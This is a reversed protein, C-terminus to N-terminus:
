LRLRAQLTLPSIVGICGKIVGAIGMILRSGSDEQGEWYSGLSSLM